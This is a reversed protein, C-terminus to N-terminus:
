LQNSVLSAIVFDLLLSWTFPLLLSFDSYIQTIGGHKDFITFFISQMSKWANVHHRARNLYVFINKVITGKCSFSFLRYSPTIQIIKKCIGIGYKPMIKLSPSWMLVQFFLKCKMLINNTTILMSASNGISKM